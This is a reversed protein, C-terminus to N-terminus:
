RVTDDLVACANCASRVICCRTAMCSNSPWEGIATVDAMYGEAFHFMKLPTGLSGVMIQGGSGKGLTSRSFSSHGRVMMPQSEVLLAETSQLVMIFGLEQTGANWFVDLLIENYNLPHGWVNEIGGNKLSTHARFSLDM